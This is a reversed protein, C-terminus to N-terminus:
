CVWCRLSLMRSGAERSGSVNAQCEDGLVAEAGRDRNRAECVDEVARKGENPGVPRVAGAGIGGRVIDDGADRGPEGALLEARDPLEVRRRVDRSCAGLVEVQERFAEGSNREVRQRPRVSRQRQVVREPRVTSQEMDVDRLM